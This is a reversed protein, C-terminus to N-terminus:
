EVDPASSPKMGKKVHGNNEGLSTKGPCEEVEENDEGVSM